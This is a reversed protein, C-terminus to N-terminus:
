YKEDCFSTAYRLKKKPSVHLALSPTCAVFLIYVLSFALSFSCSACPLANMCKYKHPIHASYVGGRGSTLGRSTRTITCSDREMARALLARTDVVRQELLVDVEKLLSSANVTAQPVGFKLRFDADDFDGRAPDYLQMPQDLRLATTFLKVVLFVCPVVFVTSTTQSLRM